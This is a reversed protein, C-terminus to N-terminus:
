RGIELGQGEHEVEYEGLAVCWNGVGEVADEEGVGKRKDDSGGESGRM